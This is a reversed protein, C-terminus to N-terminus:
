SPNGAKTMEIEAVKLVIKNREAASANVCNGVLLSCTITDHKTLQKLAIVIGAIENLDVESLIRKTETTSTEM